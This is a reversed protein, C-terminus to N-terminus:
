TKNIVETTMSYLLRVSLGSSRCHTVTIMAVVYSYQCYCKTCNSTGVM